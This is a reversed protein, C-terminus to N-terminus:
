SSLHLPSEEIFTLAKQKEEKLCGEM